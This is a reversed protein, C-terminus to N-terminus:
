SCMYKSIIEDIFDEMNSKDYYVIEYNKCYKKINSITIKELEKQMKISGYPGDVDNESIKYEKGNCTLYITYVYDYTYINKISNFWENVIDIQKNNKIINLTENYSLTSIFGRDIIILGDNYKNYKLNDNEIFDNQNHSVLGIITPNIIEDVTYVNKINRNKIANVMTTKGIGPLGELFVVKKM